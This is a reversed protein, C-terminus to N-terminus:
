FHFNAGLKVVDTNFGADISFPAPDTFDYQQTDFSSHAYEAKVSLADTLMYEVGLGATWGRHVQTDEEGLFSTTELEAVALGATGYVLVRDFAVGARGRVSGTWNVNRPLAGPAGATDINTWDIDGEVGLVFTGVQFNYGAQVGGLWGSLDDETATFPLGTFERSATGQGYGASAGVYGGSWDLEAARDGVVPLTLDAAYAAGQAGLLMAAAITTKAFLNM